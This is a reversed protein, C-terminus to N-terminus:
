NSHCDVMELSSYVQFSDIMGAVEHKGFLRAWEAPTQFSNDTRTLNRENQTKSDLSLVEINM